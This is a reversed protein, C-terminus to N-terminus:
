KVIFILPNQQAPAGQLFNQVWATVTFAAYSDLSKAHTQIEVEKQAAGSDLADISDIVCTDAGFSVTQNAAAYNYNEALQLLAQDACSRALAQAQVYSERDMEDFRAFFAISSGSLALGLLVISVIIVSLLAVFGRM